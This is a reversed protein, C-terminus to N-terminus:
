TNAISLLLLKTNTVTRIGPRTFHLIVFRKAARNSDVLYNRNHSNLMIKKAKMLLIVINSIQHIILYLKFYKPQRNYWHHKLLIKLFYLKLFLQQIKITSSVM